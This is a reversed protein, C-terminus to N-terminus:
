GKFMNRMVYMTGAQKVTGGLAGGLGSSYAFEKIYNPSKFTVWLWGFVLLLGNSSIVQSTLLTFACKLMFIQIAQSCCLIIVRRLWASWMSRNNATINLAMIPGVTAMLALEAGRISAQIAIIALIIVLIIIFVLLSLGASGVALELIFMWDDGTGAGSYLSSIDNSIKTGFIFLERVIWPLGGIIAVAQGTRVILSAPDADPDGNQYLIYTQFAESSVKLVLLAFALAQSYAICNIVLPISLVDLSTSM